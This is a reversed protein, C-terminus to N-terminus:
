LRREPNHHMEMATIVSKLAWAAKDIDGVVLQASEKLVSVDTLFSEFTRIAMNVVQAREAITRFSKLEDSFVILLHYRLSEVANLLLTHARVCRIIIETTRSRVAQDNLHAEIVRDVFNPDTTNLRRVVRQQHALKIEDMLSELPLRFNEHTAFTTKLRKFKVDKRMQAVVSNIQAKTAM